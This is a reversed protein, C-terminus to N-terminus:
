KKTGTDVLSLWHGLFLLVLSTVSALGLHLPGLSAFTWGIREALFHGSWFGLWGAILYLLLRGAGGGRWLHFISGYLTSLLFGFLLSPLPM